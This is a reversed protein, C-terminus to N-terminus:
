MLAHVIAFFLHDKAQQDPPLEAFPVFCPHEKTEVNKVPGYKWGDRRKEELWSEHSQEPRTVVGVAINRVGTMASQRQWDPAHEWNVQSNDGITQCYAQNAQHCIKAISEIQQQDMGAGKVGFVYERFVWVLAADDNPHFKLRGTVAVEVQTSNPPANIVTAPVFVLDGAEPKKRVDITYRFESM